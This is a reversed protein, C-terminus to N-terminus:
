VSFIGSTEEALREPYASTFSSPISFDPSDKQASERYREGEVSLILGFNGKFDYGLRFSFEPPLNYHGQLDSLLKSQLAKMKRKVVELEDENLGLEAHELGFTEAIDAAQHYGLPALVDLMYSLRGPSDSDWGAHNRYFHIRAQDVRKGLAEREWILEAQM